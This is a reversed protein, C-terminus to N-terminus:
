HAHPQESGQSFMIRFGRKLQADRVRDFAALASDRDLFLEHKSSSRGAPTSWERYLQWSGLLDQQLVLEYYRPSESGAPRTQM